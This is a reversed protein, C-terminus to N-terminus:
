LMEYVEAAREFYNQTKILSSEDKNKGWKFLWYRALLLSLEPDGIDIGKIKILEEMKGVNDALDYLYAGFSIKAFINILNFSIGISEKRSKELLTRIYNEIENLIEEVEKRM